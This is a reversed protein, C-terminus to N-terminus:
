RSAIRSRHAHDTRQARQAGRADARAIDKIELSGISQGLHWSGQGVAPVTTGDPFTVTRPAPKPDAATDPGQAYAQAAILASSAPLSLGLAACRAGFQRRNLLHKAMAHIERGAPCNYHLDGVNYDLDGM